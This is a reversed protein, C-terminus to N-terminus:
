PGNGPHVKKKIHCMAIFSGMGIIVIFIGFWSLPSPIPLSLFLLEGALAFLVEMSQTAEVSALKQMNGSVLDTAKFFLVTAIVGSFLAVLLSQFSQMKTPAGVTFFGVIFASVLFASEGVDNRICTSLFM